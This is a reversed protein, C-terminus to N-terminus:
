MTIRQPVDLVVGYVWAISDYWDTFSFNMADFWPLFFTRTGYTKKGIVGFDRVM